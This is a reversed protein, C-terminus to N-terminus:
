LESVAAKLVLLDFTVGGRRRVEEEQGAQVLPKEM